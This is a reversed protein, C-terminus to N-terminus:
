KPKPSVAAAAVVMALAEILPDVIVKTGLETSTNVKLTFWYKVPM